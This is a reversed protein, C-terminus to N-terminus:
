RAEEFERRFAEYLAPANANRTQAATPGGSGGRLTIPKNHNRVALERMAEVLARLLLLDVERATITTDGADPVLHAAQYYLRYTTGFANIQESTPAPSLQLQIEGAHEVRRVSPLPDRPYRWPDRHQEAVGWDGVKVDVLDEPAPYLAQGAVLALSAVMTRPRKRESIARAAVRLHRLFGSDDAANGDQFLQAADNLAAKHAEILEETTFPAPM